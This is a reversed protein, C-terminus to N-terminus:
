QQVLVKGNPDMQTSQLERGPGVSSTGPRLGPLTLLTFLELSDSPSSPSSSSLTTFLHSSRLQYLKLIGLASSHLRLINSITQTLCFTQWFYFPQIHKKSRRRQNPSGGGTSPGASPVLSLSLCLSFVVFLPMVFRVMGIDYIMTM